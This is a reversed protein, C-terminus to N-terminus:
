TQELYGLVVEFAFLYVTLMLITAVWAVGASPAIYALLVAALPFLLAAITKTKSPKSTTNPM